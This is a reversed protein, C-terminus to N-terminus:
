GAHLSGGLAREGAAIGQAYLERAHDPDATAEARLVYADACDPCVDLAREALQRRRRGIADFADFCLLQAAELPNRPPIPEEDFPRNEFREALARNADDISEFTSTELFRQMEFTAREMGRPDPDFGRRMCEAHDPPDLLDPMALTFEIRGQATEVSKSWRGQDIEEATTAALVRAMGEMFALESASPRRPEATPKFLVPHPYADQRALPLGHTEWLVADVPPIDLRSDFTLIWVGDQCADLWAERDESRMQMWLDEAESYFALGIARNFESLVIVHALGKPPTPSEIRILDVSELERWPKARRFEVMAAAFERVMDVTVGDGDLLGPAALHRVLRESVSTAVRDFHELDPKCEVGVGVPELLERLRTALQEDRVEVHGPLYGGETDDTAFRIMGEIQTDITSDGPGVEDVPGFRDADLAIWATLRPEYPEGGSEVQPLSPLEIWDGQWVEGARRPLHRIRDILNTTSM